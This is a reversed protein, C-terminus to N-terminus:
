VTAPCRVWIWGEVAALDTDAPQIPRGEIFDAGAVVCVVADLIDANGEAAGPDCDWSITGGLGELIEERADRQDPRKYGTSRIGLARLTAAPYVEIAAVRESWDPSWALPIPLGTEDRLARLLKLTAHATRAIRDAGVDLPRVGITEAVADDTTRRFLENRSCPLPHGAQHEALSPGLHAPWGLPSDLALLVRDHRGIWTRLTAVLDPTGAEAELIVPSGERVVARALGVKRVDTACDIGIIGTAM